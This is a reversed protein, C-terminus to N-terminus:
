AAAKLHYTYLFRSQDDDDPDVGFGYPALSEVGVEFVENVRDFFEADALLGDRFEYAFLCVGTPGALQKMTDVLARCTDEDHQYIIECGIVVDCREFVPGVPDGWRLAEVHVNDGCAAINQLANRRLLPLATPLDSLVVQSAGLAAAVLGVLGTGAGLDVVRRGRVLEPHACLHASLSHASPWVVRGTEDDGGARVADEQEVVITAPLGSQGFQILCEERLPSKYLLMDMYKDSLANASGVVSEFSWGLMSILRKETGVDVIHHRLSLGLEAAVRRLFLVRKATCFAISVFVGGPKRLVRAVEKLMACKDEPSHLADLTGKDLVVSIVGAEIGASDLRRCDGLVCSIRADSSHQERLLEVLPAAVDVLTLTAGALEDLMEHGWTSTGCGIDLVRLGESGVNSVAEDFYPRIYSRILAYRLHWEMDGPREEHWRTWHDGLAGGIAGNTNPQGVRVESAM